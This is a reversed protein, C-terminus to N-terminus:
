VWMWKSLWADATDVLPWVARAEECVGDLGCWAEEGEVEEEERV